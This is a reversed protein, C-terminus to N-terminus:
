NTKTAKTPEAAVESETAPEGTPIKALNKIPPLRSKFVNEKASFLLRLNNLFSKKNFNKLENTFNSQKNDSKEM